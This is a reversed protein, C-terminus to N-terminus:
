NKLENSDVLLDRFRDIARGDMYPDMLPSGAQIPTKYSEVGNRRIESVKTELEKYSHTTVGGAKAYPTDMYCGMPDHWIAPRNVSLAEFTTSTFPFSVIMDSISILVSADERDSCTKIRAHTDMKKYVDLLRPGLVSDLIHHIDRQKKEKFFIYIDTCDNALQLIHEAFALGEPYSTVGNRSYTTDFVSLIFSDEMNKKSVAEVTKRAIKETKKIHESWLCGVIHTQKFSGPHKQFYQALLGDWTVFHDYNLYTWNPHCAENRRNEIKM